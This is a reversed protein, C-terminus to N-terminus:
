REGRVQEVVWNLAAGAVAFPWALAVCIKLAVEEDDGLRAAYAEIEPAYRIMGVYVGVTGYVAIFLVLSLLLYLESM